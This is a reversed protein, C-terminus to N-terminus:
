HRDWDWHRCGCKHHHHWRHHSEKVWFSGKLRPGDDCHGWVRVRGTDTDRPIHLWGTLGEDTHHKLWVTHRVGDLKVTAKAPGESCDETSLRVNHGSWVVHPSAEIEGVRRHHCDDAFANAASVGM